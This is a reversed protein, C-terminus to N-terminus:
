NCKCIRVPCKSHVCRGGNAGCRVDCDDNSWCEPMLRCIAVPAFQDESAPPLPSCADQEGPIVAGLESLCADTQPPAIDAPIPASVAPAPASAVAVTLLGLCALLFALNRHRM